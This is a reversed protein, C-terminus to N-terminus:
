GRLYAIRACDNAPRSRYPHIFFASVRISRGDARPPGRSRGLAWERNVHGSPAHSANSAPVSGTSRKASNRSITIGAVIKRQCRSLTRRRHARNDRRPREPRATPDWFRACQGEVPSRYPESSNTSSAASSQAAAGPLPRRRIRRVPAPPQSPTTRQLAPLTPSASRLHRYSSILMTHPEFFRNAHQGADKQLLAPRAPQSTTSTPSDTSSPNEISETSPSSQDSPAPLVGSVLVKAVKARDGTVAPRGPRPDTLGARQRDQTVRARGVM